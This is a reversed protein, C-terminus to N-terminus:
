VEATRSTRTSATSANPLAGALRHLHDIRRTLVLSHPEGDLYRGRRQHDAPRPRGKGRGCAPGSGPGIVQSPLPLDRGLWWRWAALFLGLGALLAPATTWGTAPGHAHPDGAAPLVAAVVPHFAMVLCLAVHLGWTGRGPRHWLHVACPLCALAIATWLVNTAGDVLHLAACGTAVVAATRALLCPGAAVRRQHSKM